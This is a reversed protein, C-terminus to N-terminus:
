PRGMGAFTAARILRSLHSEILWSIIKDGFLIETMASVGSDYYNLLWYARTVAISEYGGVVSHFGFYDYVTIKLTM